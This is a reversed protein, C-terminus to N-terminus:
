FNGSIPSQFGNPIMEPQLLLNTKFLLCLLYLSLPADQFQGTSSFIGCAVGGTSLLRSFNLMRLWILTMRGTYVPVKSIGTKSGGRVFSGQADRKSRNGIM